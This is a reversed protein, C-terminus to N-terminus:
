AALGERRLRRTGRVEEVVSGPGAMALRDPADEIEVVGAIAGELDADGLVAREGVDLEGAGAAREGGVVRAAVGRALPRDAVGGVAGGREGLGGAALAAVVVAEV